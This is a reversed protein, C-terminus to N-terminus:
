DGGIPLQMLAAVAVELMRAYQSMLFYVVAAFPLQLVGLCVQEDYLVAVITGAVKSHAPPQAQSSKLATAGAPRAAAIGAAATAATGTAATTTITSIAAAAAAEAPTSSSPLGGNERGGGGYSGDGERTATTSCQQGEVTAEPLPASSPTADPQADTCAPSASPISAGALFSTHILTHTTHTLTHTHTHQILILTTCTYM